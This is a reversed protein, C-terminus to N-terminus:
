NKSITTRQKLVEEILVRNGEKLSITFAPQTINYERVDLRGKKYTREPYISIFLTYPSGHQNIRVDRPPYLMLFDSVIREKDHIVEVSPSINVGSIFVVSGRIISFPYIRIKHKQGNIKIEAEAKSPLPPREKGIVIIRDPMDSKISSVIGIPTNDGERARIDLITRTKLSLYVGLAFIIFGAIMLISGSKKFGGKIFLKVMRFFLGLLLVSYTFVFLPDAFLVRLNDEFQKEGKISNVYYFSLLVFTCTLIFLTSGPYRIIRKM